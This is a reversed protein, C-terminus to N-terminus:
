VKTFVYGLTEGTKNGQADIEHVPEPRGNRKIYLRKLWGNKMKFVKEAKASFDPKEPLLMTGPKCDHLHVFGNMYRVMVGGSEHCKMCVLGKDRVTRQPITIQEAVIKIETGCVSPQGPVIPHSPICFPCLFKLGNEGMVVKVPLARTNVIPRKPKHKM